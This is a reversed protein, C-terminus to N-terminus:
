RIQWTPIYVHRIMAADSPTPPPLRTVINATPRLENELSMKDQPHTKPLAHLGVL